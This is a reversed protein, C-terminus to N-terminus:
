VPHGIFRLYDVYVPPLDAEAVREYDKPGYASYSDEGHARGDEDFSWLIVTRMRLLYHGDDRPVCYGRAKAIKWSALTRITGEHCITWDDVAVREKVSSLIAAGSELFDEYYRRVSAYGKPGTDGRPGWFHYRPEAVLTKMLGDIDGVAEAKAHDIITQIVTRHRPSETVALREELSTWGVSQDFDLV